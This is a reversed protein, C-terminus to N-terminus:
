RRFARFSASHREDLRRLSRERRFAATRIRHALDSSM